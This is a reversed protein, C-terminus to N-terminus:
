QVGVRGSIGDIIVTRTRGVKQHNLRIQLNQNSAGDIFIPAYPATIRVTVAPDPSSVTLQSVEMNRPLRVTELLTQVLNIEYYITYTTAPATFRIEYADAAEVGNIIKGSLVANQVERLKSILDNSAATVEQQTRLSQFNFLVITALIASIAAVVTLEILTFGPSKHNQLGLRLRPAISDSNSIM